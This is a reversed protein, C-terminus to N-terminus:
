RRAEMGMQYAEDARASCNACLSEGHGFRVFGRCWHWNVCAKPDLSGSGKCAPCFSGDCKCDPCPTM